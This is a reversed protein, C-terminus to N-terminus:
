CSSKEEFAAPKALVLLSHGGLLRVGFDPALRKLLRRPLAATRSRFSKLRDIGSPTYFWDEVEYGSYRLSELATEKTFYHLHGVERRAHLIPQVRLLAQVSIDLPFHFIAHVNKRCLRRLFGLYDEVHEVVDLCLLLDMGSSNEKEWLKDVHAFRLGKNERERCLSLAQPSIEYGLFQTGTPLVQQLQHLVEGAGCGVEGVCSPQLGHRRLMRAVQHAKWPSDEVHWDPSRQSYEGSEYVSYGM